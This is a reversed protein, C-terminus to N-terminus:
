YLYGNFKFYYSKVFISTIDSYSYGVLNRIDIRIKDQYYACSITANYNGGHNFYYPTPRYDKANDLPATIYTEQGIYFVLYVLNPYISKLDIYKTKNSSTFGGTEAIFKYGVFKTKLDNNINM